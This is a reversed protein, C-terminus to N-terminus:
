APAPQDQGSVASQPNKDYQGPHATFAAPDERLARALRRLTWHRCRPRTERELRALTTLGVGSEWALKEQSLGHLRRLQRLRSGDIVLSDPLASCRSRSRGQTATTLDLTQRADASYDM